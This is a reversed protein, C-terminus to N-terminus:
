TRNRIFDLGGKGSLGENDGNECLMSLDFHIRETFVGIVIFSLCGFFRLSLVIKGHGM